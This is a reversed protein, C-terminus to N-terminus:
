LKIVGSRDGRIQYTIENIDMNRIILWLSVCFCVSLLVNLEKDKVDRGFLEIGAKLFHRQM